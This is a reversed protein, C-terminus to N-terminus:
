EKRGRITPINWFGSNQLLCNNLVEEPAPLHGMVWTARPEASPKFIGVRFAARPANAEPQPQLLSSLRGAPALHTRPQDWLGTHPSPPPRHGPHRLAGTLLLTGQPGQGAQAGPDLPPLLPFCTPDRPSRHGPPHDPQRISMKSSSGPNPYSAQTHASNCAQPQPATPAAPELGGFRTCPQRVESATRASTQPAQSRAPTKAGM